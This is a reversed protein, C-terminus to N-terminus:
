YTGLTAPKSDASEVSSRDQTLLKANSCRLTLFHLHFSDEAIQHLISDNIYETLFILQADVTATHHTGLM